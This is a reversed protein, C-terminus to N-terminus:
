DALNNIREEREWEEQRADGHPNESRCEDALNIGM